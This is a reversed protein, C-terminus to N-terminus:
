LSYLNILAESLPGSGSNDYNYEKLPYDNDEAELCVAAMFQKGSSMFIVVKVKKKGSDELSVLGNEEIPAAFGYALVAIGNYDKVKSNIEESELIDYIDQDQDETEILDLGVYGNSSHNSSDGAHHDFPQAILVGYICTLDSHNNYHIYKVIESSICKLENYTYKSKSVINQEKQFSRAHELLMDTVPDNM